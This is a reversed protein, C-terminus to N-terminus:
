AIKGPIPLTFSFTMGRDSNTEAWLRGEHSEVISRSIALGLGLGKAKTTFFPEFLRNVSDTQVGCGRDRVSVVAQNEDIGAVLTV